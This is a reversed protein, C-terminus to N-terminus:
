KSGGELRALAAMVAERRYRIARGLRIRPLLGRRTLNDVHKTCCVLLKATQYKTLVPPLSGEEPNASKQATDVLVTSFKNNM